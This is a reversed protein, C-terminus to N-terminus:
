ADHPMPYPISPDSSDPIKNNMDDDKVGGSQLSRCVSEVQEGNIVALQSKELSVPLRCYVLTQVREKIEKGHLLTPQHIYSWSNM